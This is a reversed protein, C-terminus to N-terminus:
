GSPHKSNHGDQDARYLRIANLKTKTEALELEPTSLGTIAAGVLVYSGSRGEGAKETFATRLVQSFAFQGDPQIFGILGYYPGRDFDEHDKLLEFGVEVPNIGYPFISRLCDAVSTGAVPRTIFRSWGHLLTPLEMIQFKEVDVEGLRNLHQEITAIASHHEAVIRPDMSFEELLQRKTLGSQKACTGSLKHTSFADVTGDALLEPSQGAFAICDNSFYFSRSLAHQSNDALLTKTLDFPWPSVIKRALTARELRNERIARLVASVAQQYKGADASAEDLSAIDLPSTELDTAADATPADPADPLTGKLLRFDLRTCEIVLEPVFLDVRKRNRVIARDLENGPDFGLFGMIYDHGHASIFDDIQRWVSDLSSQEVVALSAGRGIGLLLHDGTGYCCFDGQLATLQLRSLINAAIYRADHVM